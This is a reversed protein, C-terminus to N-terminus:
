ADRSEQAGSCRQDLRQTQGYDHDANDSDDHRKGPCTKETQGRDASDIEQSQDPPGAGITRPGKGDEKDSYECQWQDGRIIDVTQCGHFTNGGIWGSRRLRAPAVNDSGRLENQPMWDDAGAKSHINKCEILDSAHVPDLDM